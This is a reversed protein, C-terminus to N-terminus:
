FGWTFSFTYAGSYQSIDRKAVIKHRHSSNCAGSYLVVLGTKMAAGRTLDEVHTVQKGGNYDKDYLYAGCHNNWGSNYSAKWNTLNNGKKYYTAPGYASKGNPITFSVTHTAAFATGICSMLSVCCLVLAIVKVFRTNM